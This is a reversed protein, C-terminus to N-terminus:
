SWFQVNKIGLMQLLKNLAALIWLIINLIYNPYIIFLLMIIINKKDFSQGQNFWDSALLVAYIIILAYYIFVFSDEVYSLTNYQEYSYRAKQKFLDIENSQKDVVKKLLEIRNDNSTSTGGSQTNTNLQYLVNILTDAEFFLNNIAKIYTSKNDMASKCTQKDADKQITCDTYFDDWKLIGTGTGTRVNQETYLPIRKNEVTGGGSGRYWKFGEKGFESESESETEEKSGAYLGERLQFGQISEVPFINNEAINHQKVRRDLEIYKTASNVLNGPANKCEDKINEKMRYTSVIENENAKGDVLTTYRISLEQIKEPCDRLINRSTIWENYAVLIDHKDKEPGSVGGSEMFKNATSINAKINKLDNAIDDEDDNEGSGGRSKRINATEPSIIENANAASENMMAKGERAKAKDEDSADESKDIAKDFKGM